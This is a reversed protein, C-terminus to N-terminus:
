LPGVIVAIVGVELDTPDHERSTDVRSLWSRIEEFNLGGSHSTDFEELVDKIWVRKAQRVAAQTNATVRFSLLPM